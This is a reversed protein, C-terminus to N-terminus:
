LNDLLFRSVTQLYDKITEPKRFGHGEGPYLRFVVPGKVKEAMTSSQAPPVVPDIEGQFLALPAKIKDTHYIPSRAIYRDYAAPLMGVLGDTYHLELKHTDVALDLLNSIGYLSVGAKFADPFRSLVNLVTFGGASSGIIVMRSRDALGMKGLIDAGRIADEVDYEGWHGNLSNLYTRGYGHSGRYNVELWGYGRSTFYQIEPNLRFDAKGTPGGHVHVFASLFLLGSWTFNPNVPPYYFGHVTADNAAQWSLPLPMSIWDLPFDDPDLRFVVSVDQESIRLVQQSHHPGSAAVAIAGSIKSVSLLELNTYGPLNREHESNDALDLISLTSNTGCIKIYALRRGDAFWDYTHDGQSFAPVSLAFNQGHVAVQESGDALDLLVLDEWDSENNGRIFSLKSGDPSFLPQSAPADSDGAVKRINSLTGSEPDVDALMVRSAEWAMAPHDWEVWAFRNGRPSWVPQLYFDAGHIWLQPWAYEDLRILAIQDNEGDSSVFAAFRRDPSIAPSATAIPNRGSLEKIFSRGSTRACLGKKGASFVITGNSVDFDGGGYGVTGGVPFNGNIDRINNKASWELLFTQGEKSGSLLLREESVASDWKLGSLRGRRAVFDEQIPSKWLGFPLQIM